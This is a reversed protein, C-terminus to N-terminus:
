SSPSELQLPPATPVLFFRGVAVQFRQGFVHRFGTFFLHFKPEIRYFQRCVISELSMLQILYLLNHALVLHYKDLCPMFMKASLLLILYRLANLGVVARAFVKCKSSLMICTVSRSPRTILTGIM